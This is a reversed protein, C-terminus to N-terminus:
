ATARSKQSMGRDVGDENIQHPEFYKATLTLRALEAANRAGLKRMANGRHMKVTVLALRLRAAIEKNLMGGIILKIVECERATLLAFRRYMADGEHRQLMQRSHALARDITDRLEDLTSTETLIDEAGARMACVARRIDLGGALVIMPMPHGRMKFQECVGLGGGAEFDLDIVLCAPGTPLPNSLISRISFYSHIQINKAAVALRVPAVLSENDCLLLLAEPLDLAPIPQSNLSQANTSGVFVNVASSMGTQNGRAANTSSAITGNPLNQQM